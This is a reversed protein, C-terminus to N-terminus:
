KGGGRKAKAPKAAERVLAKAQGVWDEREIRGDFALYAEAAEIDAKKWSAVQDFHFIGHENLKKENVPGIGKIDILRDKVGGRPAALVNAIGKAAPAKAAPAKTAPTKSAPAKAAKATATAKAAPAAKAGAPKAGAASAKAAPKAVPKKATPKAETKAPAAKAPETKAAPKAAPAAKAAAPKAAPAKAAPKAEAKVSAAKASEAKAAPKASASKAPKTAPKASETAPEKAAPKAAASKPAPKAAPKAAVSAAPKSAAPKKPAAASSAKKAPASKAVPASMLGMAPTTDSKPAADGAVASRDHAEVQAAKSAGKSVSVIEGDSHSITESVPGAMMSASTSPGHAPDPLGELEEIVQEDGVEVLVEGVEEDDVGLYAAIVKPDTRVSTPDGDSIKRGYELVVVHDSIQMVVSMDHEILLISTGTNDKIDNLLTNLALSEKPNLGAAPEDLCLLEPGTCMARAIELRRQAGYPLDGAPDDARDILEAKELWHKAIDVSEASVKRYPGLGLLGMITYGSAKMLKNHQAVLLNELLTMGSFLRINQFTRAVKAKATIQFDPMRELLFEGGERGNFRIMGETPKYFGTICNFVTTNGAGNPGILATIEGRKAEFSLDGIAVLGGFKMSLHEVELIPKNMSVSANM